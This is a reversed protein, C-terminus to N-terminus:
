CALPVLKRLNPRSLRVFVPTTGAWAATKGEAWAKRSKQSEGICESVPPTFNARFFPRLPRFGRSKVPSGGLPNLM